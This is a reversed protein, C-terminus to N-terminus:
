ETALPRFPGSRVFKVPFGEINKPLQEQAGPHDADLHVAIVFKGDEDKEVGVGSVGPQSLLEASHRRKVDRAEQETLMTVKAGVNV